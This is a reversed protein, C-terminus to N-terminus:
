EESVTTAEVDVVDSIAEIAAEVSEAQATVPVALNLTATFRLSDGTKYAKAMDTVDENVNVEGSSGALSKFGFAEVAAEVTKIVSEQVAFQTIQPQAYPPM